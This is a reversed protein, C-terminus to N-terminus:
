SESISQPQIKVLLKLFKDIDAYVASYSNLALLGNGVKTARDIKLLNNLM